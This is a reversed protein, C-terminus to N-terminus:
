FPTAYQKSGLIPYYKHLCFLIPFHNIGKWFHKFIFSPHKQALVSESTEKTTNDVLPYIVQAKTIGM